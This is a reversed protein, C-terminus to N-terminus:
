KKSRTIDIKEIAEVRRPGIIIVEKSIIHGLLKGEQLSFHSKKPNLFFGFKMCNQFVRELHQFHKEDSELFVTIDDLYTVVFKYREELFSIDM